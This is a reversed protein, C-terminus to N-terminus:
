LFHESSKPICPLGLLKPANIFQSTVLLYTVFDEDEFVIADPNGNEGIYSVLEKIVTNCTNMESSLLKKIFLKKM